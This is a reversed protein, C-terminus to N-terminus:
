HTRPSILNHSVLSSKSAIMHLPFSDIWFLASEKGNWESTKVMFLSVSLVSKTAQSNMNAKFLTQTWTDLKTLVKRSFEWRWLRWRLIMQTLRQLWIVEYWDLKVVGEDFKYGFKREGYPHYKIKWFKIEHITGWLWRWAHSKFSSQKNKNWSIWCHGQRMSADNWRLSGLSYWPPIFGYLVHEICSVYVFFYQLLKGELYWMMNCGIHVRQGRSIWHFIPTPFGLLCINM